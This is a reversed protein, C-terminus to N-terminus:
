PFTDNGNRYLDDDPAFPGEFGEAEALLKQLLDRVDDGDADLALGPVRDDLALVLFDDADVALEVKRTVTGDGGFVGAAIEEGADAM